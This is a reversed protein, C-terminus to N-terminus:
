KFIITFKYIFFYFITIHMGARSISAKSHPHCWVLVPFRKHTWCEALDKIQEDTISAPVRSVSPFTPTVAYNQNVNTTRWMKPNVGMRSYESERNPTYFQIDRFLFTLMGAALKLSACSVQEQKPEKHYPCRTCFQYLVRAHIQPLSTQTPRAPFIAM